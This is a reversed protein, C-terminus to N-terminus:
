LCAGLDELNFPAAQQLKDEGVFVSAGAPLVTSTFCTDTAAPLTIDFGDAGTGGVNLAYDIVSDGPNSDLTDNGELSFGTASLTNNASLDGAYQDWPLGGGIVRLQWVRDTTVSCDQWLYAGPESSNDVVPEGCWPDPQPPTVQCAGLDELNFTGTKVMKSAGVFISAGVPVNTLELCTNSGAPLTTDFGDIGAGGVFLGFDVLTDGPTSDLTDSGELDVGTAALNVDGLLSGLYGQWSLGGGVARMLWQADTGGASCNQWLYFGPESTNDFSVPGCADINQPDDSPDLPDTGNDVEFGDEAGGGDTDAVNPNTGLVAEEADTLGDNDTDVSPPCELGTDLSLTPTTLAARSSGLFVDASSPTLPTFCATNPANFELGDVGTGYVILNYAFQNPDSADLTDSGEILVGVVNTLGGPIDITASYDQRSQASDGIVTLSWRTGGGTCDLWLFTGIDTGPNLNPDGCFVGTGNNIVTINITAPTSTVVGDFATFTFSDDGVFGPDPTYTLNPETGSLTGNTPSSATSFLLPDSDADNGALTIAIATDASTVVSQATAVPTTNNGGGPQGPDSDVLDDIGDADADIGGGTDASSIQGDNNTDYIVNPTGGIDYATGDNLPNNSERDLYDPIGDNDTDPPNTVTGQQNTDDVLFNGDADILGAEVVDALTDNDSDLDMLNAINDGDTDGATEVSNPIGDNDLDNDVPCDGLGVLDFPPDIRKGASGIYIAEFVTNSLDFCASTLGSTSFNFGKANGVSQAVTIDFDIQTIPAASITDTGNLGVPTVSPFNADSSIQGLAQHPQDQTLRSLGNQARFSWDDTGCERWLQLAPGLTTTYPPVGCEEGSVVPQPTPASVTAASFSSAEVADYLADSSVNTYTDVQGSPWEIRVESVTTNAALGFHLRTHNQSFRHYGGSQERLQTVGGATVFVKAGIAANPSVTGLLDIEIWHNSNGQNRLLTDPGGLSVPYFLLGNTVSLDMFGDLDYDVVNVSDAVGFEIGHGVPGEGGHNVVEVFTGDGQNDYYRNTLNSVGTRCAMYLDVDMDNDFDAAVVSVCSKAVNLGTNFVWQIGTPTNVGHYTALPDDGLEGGSMVPESVSNVADIRVYGQGGSTDQVQWLSPGSDYSISIGRASASSTGNTDLVFVDAARFAGGGAGDLTFTVEGPASFTFSPGSGSRFWGEIRNDNVKAAGVPRIAGRTVVIDTRGDNNFDAIAADNSQNIAPIVGTPDMAPFLGEDGCIRDMDGDVDVDFLLLYHGSPCSRDSELERDSDLNNWNAFARNSAITTPTLFGGTDANNIFAESEGGTIIDDDGDNDYDALGGAHVDHQTDALHYGGMNVDYFMTRDDLDGDGTNIYIRPFDRHALNYLDPWKDGNINGWAHGWTETGRTFGLKDSTDEFQIPNALATGSLSALTLATLLRM